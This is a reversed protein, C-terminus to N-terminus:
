KVLFLAPQHSHLPHLLYLGPPLALPRSFDGSAVFFRDLLRGSLSLIRVHAGDLGKLLLSGQHYSVAPTFSSNDLPTLSTPPDDRPPTPVPTPIPIPAPPIKVYLAYYASHQTGDCSTVYVRTHGENLAKFLRSYAYLNDDAFAVIHPDEISWSIRTFSPDGLLFARLTIVDATDAPEFRNTIKEATDVILIGSALNHSVMIQISASVNHILGQSRATVVTTAGPKLAKVTRRHSHRIDDLPSDDFILVSPDEIEWDLIDIDPSYNIYQAILDIRGNESLVPFSRDWEDLIVLSGDPPQLNPAFTNTNILYTAQTGNPATAIITVISNPILTKVEIWAPNDVDQAPRRRLIDVIGSPFDTWVIDSLVTSPLPPTIHAFLKLSDGQELYSFNKGDGSKIAIHAVEDPSSGEITLIYEAVQGKEQTNIRICVSGPLLAKLTRTTLMTSEDSDLFVLANPSTDDIPEITWRIQPFSADHPVFSATLNITHGVQITSQKLGASNLLSLDSLPIYNIYLLFSDKVPLKDLLSRLQPSIVPALLDNLSVINFALLSDIAFARIRCRTNPTGAFVSFSPSSLIGVPAGFQDLLDSLIFIASPNTADAPASSATMSVYLYPDVVSAGDVLPSGKAQASLKLSSIWKPPTPPKPAELFTLSTQAQIAAVDHSVYKGAPSAYLSLTGAANQGVPTLSIYRHQPDDQLDHLIQIWGSPTSWRISDYDANAPSVLARLRVTDTVAYKNDIKPNLIQLEISEVHITDTRIIFRDRHVESPHDYTEVWVTDLALSNLARFSVQRANEPHYLIEVAPRLPDAPATFWRILTDTIGEPYHLLNAQYYKGPFRLDVTLPLIEHYQLTTDKKKDLFVIDGAYVPNVYLEYVNSTINQEGQIKAIVKVTFITNPRFVNLNLTMHHKDRFRLCATMYDGDGLIPPNNDEEFEQEVVQAPLSCDDVSRNTYRDRAEIEWTFSKYDVSFPFAELKLDVVGDFEIFSTQQGKDDTLLLSHGGQAQLSCTFVFSCLFVFVARKM